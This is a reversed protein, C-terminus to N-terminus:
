LIARDKLLVILEHSNKFQYAPWGRKKAAEVNPALDDIYLLPKKGCFRKEVKQYIRRDPKLLGLEYSTFLHRFHAFFEFRRTLYEIHGPSTNSLAVLQYKRALTNVLEEMGEVPQIFMKNWGERFKAYSCSLSLSRSMEQYFEYDSIIGTEYAKILHSPFFKDRTLPLSTFSALYGVTRVTDFRILVQGIDFIIIPYNEQYPREEM